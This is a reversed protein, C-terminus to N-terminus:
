TGTYGADATIAKVNSLVGGNIIFLLVVGIFNDVDVLCDSEGQALM